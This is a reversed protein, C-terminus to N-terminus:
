NNIPSNGVNVRVTGQALSADLDEETKLLEDIAVGIPDIEFIRYIIPTQSRLPVKHVLM